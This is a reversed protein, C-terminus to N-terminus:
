IAYQTECQLYVQFKLFLNILVKWCCIKFQFWWKSFNSESQVVAALASEKADRAHKGEALLDSMKALAEQDFGFTEALIRHKESLSKLIIEDHRKLREIFHFKPLNYWSIM